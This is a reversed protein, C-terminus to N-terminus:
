TSRARMAHLAVAAILGGLLVLGVPGLAPVLMPLPTDSLGADGITVATISGNSVLTNGLVVATTGLAALEPDADIASALATLVSGAIQGPSTVVQITEGDVVLAVFGGQATGFLMADNELECSSFCGDGSSTNGDDCEENPDLVADGCVM